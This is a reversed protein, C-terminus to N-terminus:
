PPHGAWRPASGFRAAPGAGPYAPATTFRKRTGRDATPRPPPVVPQRLVHKDLFHRGRDTLRSVTDSM